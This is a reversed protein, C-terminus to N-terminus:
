RKPPKIREREGREMAPATDARAKGREACLGCVLSAGGARRAGGPWYVPIRWAWGPDPMLAGTRIGNGLDRRKLPPESANAKRTGAQRSESRRKRM